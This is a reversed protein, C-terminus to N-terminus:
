DTPSLRFVGITRDTREAYARYGGYHWCALEWADARDDGELLRARHPRPESRVAVLTVEPHARLNHYWAPHKEGGYNSAILITDAGDPIGFTVIDRRQGSKAGTTQVTVVPIGIAWQSPSWRGDTVSLAWQDVRHLSTAFLKSGGASAALRQLVRQALGIRRNPPHATGV